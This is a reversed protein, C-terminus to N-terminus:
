DTILLDPRELRFQDLAEVGNMSTIVEYGRGELITALLSLVPQYDDVIQITEM